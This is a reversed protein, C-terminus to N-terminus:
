TEDKRPPAFKEPVADRLAVRVQATVSRDESDAWRRLAAYESAPLRISVQREASRGSEGHSEM